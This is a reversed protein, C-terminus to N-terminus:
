EGARLKVEGVRKGAGDFTQITDYLDRVVVNNAGSAFAVATVAVKEHEFNLIAGTILNWLNVVGESAGFLLKQGSSM